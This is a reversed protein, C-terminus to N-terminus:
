EGIRIKNYWVDNYWDLTEGLDNKIETPALDEATYIPDGELFKAASPNVEAHFNFHKLFEAYIEPRHIFNIFAHAANPHKSKNLICMSDIYAPGGEKPIFAATNKLLEPYNAIEEMVSEIYGQIVWFDGSAYGKAFAEADFKVLNPKWALNILEGAQEIQARDKTNVSYGLSVLADGMVERMDDLMVMKGALDTRDFIDWSKEFEPVKATNVVIGAAGWYYPVSYEMAPDPTREAVAPNVNELNQLKSKDLKLLMNQATMISVFDASPFIIDYGAAGSKIKAYMEENSAYEERVVRVNFEQAFQELVKPSTYYPWTYISLIQEIEGDAAAEKKQCGSLLVLLGLALCLVTIHRIKFGLDGFSKKNKM